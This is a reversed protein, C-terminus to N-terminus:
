SSCCNTLQYGEHQGNTPSRGSGMRFGDRAQARACGRLTSSFMTALTATSVDGTPLTDRISYLHSLALPLQERTDVVTISAPNLETRLNM